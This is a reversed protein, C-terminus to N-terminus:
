TEISKLARRCVLLTDPDGFGGAKTVVPLRREELGIGGSAKGELAMDGLELGGLELGGLALGWPVGVDVEGGLAIALMGARELLRRATAGGTAVLGGFGPLRPGVIDALASVLSLDHVTTVPSEGVIGLAADWGRALAADLHAELRRAAAMSRVDEPLVRLGAVGPEAVLREFQDRSVASSSGVVFLLPGQAVPPKAPAALRPGSLAAALPRMLGASGVWLLPVRAALATAVIITLDRDSEADCVVADVGSRAIEDFLGASRWAPADVEPRVLVRVSLGGERLPAAVEGADTMLAPATGEADVAPPAGVLVRGSRTIRGRAPFAPAVPALPSAGRAAALSARAAALEHAWNGRLTSDIKHYLITAGLDPMQGITRALTEGADAPSKDRSDLDIATVSATAQPAAAVDLLVLTDLGAAACGGACDAAGSLDDALILIKTMARQTERCDGRFLACPAANAAM